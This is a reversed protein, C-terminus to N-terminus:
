SAKHPKIYTPLPFLSRIDSMLTAVFTAVFTEGLM